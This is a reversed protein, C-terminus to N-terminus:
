ELADVELVVDWAQGKSELITRKAKVQYTGIFDKTYTSYEITIFQGLEVPIFFTNIQLKTLKSKTTGSGISKKDSIDTINKILDDTLTYNTKSFKATDTASLKYPITVIKGNSHSWKLNLEESLTEMNKVLKGSFTRGGTKRDSELDSLGTTGIATGPLRGIMDEFIEATSMDESYNLSAHTNKMAMGGSQCTLRYVVDTGQPFVSVKLVDGTYALETYGGFGANVIVICNDQNIVEILDDDLNYLDLITKESDSSSSSVKQLSNLKFTFGRVPFGDAVINGMKRANSPITTEDSALVKEPVVVSANITYKYSTYERTGISITYSRDWNTDWKM